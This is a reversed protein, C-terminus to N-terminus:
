IGRFVFHPLPDFPSAQFEFGVTALTEEARLLYSQLTKRFAVPAESLGYAPAHPKRIRHPGSPDWDVPARLLVYRKFGEAQRFANKTDM